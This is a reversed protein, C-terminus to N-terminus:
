DDYVGVGIVSLGMPLPLYDELRLLPVLRDFLSVQDVPLRALRRLRGNLFWGVAGIVNFYFTKEVRFGARRLALALSQRTYRRQHGLEVDLSGYLFRLAPVLIVARGGPQLMGGISRLAAIDDTIHEIVNLAVVTDLSHRAFRTRAQPDPLTLEDIVVGPSAGLKAQLAARYYPDTDTLLLLEASSQRLLVSINGIGAGVECIRRGLYRAIRDYQWVNYHSAAQLVELTAAGTADFPTEPVPTL